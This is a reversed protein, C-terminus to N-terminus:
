RDRSERVKFHDAQAWYGDPERERVRMEGRERKRETGGDRGVV